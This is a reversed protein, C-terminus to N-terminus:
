SAFEHLELRRPIRLTTNVAAIEADSVKVGSPYKNEGVQARVKLYAGLLQVITRYSRPESAQRAM